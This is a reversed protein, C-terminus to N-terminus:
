KAKPILTWSWRTKTLNCDILEAIVEILIPRNGLAEKRVMISRSKFDDSIKVWSGMLATLAKETMKIKVHNGDMEQSRAPLFTQAM